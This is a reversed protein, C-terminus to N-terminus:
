WIGFVLRCVAVTMSFPALRFIHRQVPREDGRGVLQHQIAGVAFPCFWFLLVVSLSFLGVCLWQSLNPGLCWSTTSSEPTAFVIM